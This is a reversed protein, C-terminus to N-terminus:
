FTRMVGLKIATNDKDGLPSELGIQIDFKTFEPKLIISPAFTGYIEGGVHSTYFQLMGSTVDTFNLGLTADIKKIHLAYTLDWIVAGEVTAWGSTGGWNIGRGWSLATRLHPLNETNTWATGIGVEYAWKSKADEPVLARRISFTAKGSNLYGYQRTMSVDAVVTSKASLGYEVYTQSTIALFYTGTVSTASFTAGKERLWPGAEVGFPMILLVTICFLRYLM